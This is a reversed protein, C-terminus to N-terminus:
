GMAALLWRSPAMPAWAGQSDGDCKPGMAARHFGADMPHSPIPHFVAPRWGPPDNGRPCLWPLMEARRPPVFCLPFSGPRKGMSVPLLLVGVLM